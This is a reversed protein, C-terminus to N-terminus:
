SLEDLLAKAEKLDATDFGETFWRLQTGISRFHIPRGLGSPRDRRVQGTTLPARRSSHPSSRALRGDVAVMTPSECVDM